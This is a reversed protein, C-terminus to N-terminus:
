PVLRITRASHDLAQRLARLSHSTTELEEVSLGISSRAMRLLGPLDMLLVQFEGTVTLKVQLSADPDEACVEILGASALLDLQAPTPSAHGVRISAVPMSRRSALQRLIEAAGPTLLPGTPDNRGDELRAVIRALEQVVARFARLHRRDEDAHPPPRHGRLPSTSDPIM